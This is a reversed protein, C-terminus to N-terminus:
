YDIDYDKRYDIDSYKEDNMADMMMQETIEITGCFMYKQSVREHMTLNYLYEEPSNCSKWCCWSFSGNPNEDPILTVEIDLVRRPNGKVYFHVNINRAFVETMYKKSFVPIDDPM